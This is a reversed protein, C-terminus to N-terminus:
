IHKLLVLDKAIDPYQRTCTLCSPLLLIELKAAQGEQRQSWNTISGGVTCHAAYELQGDTPLKPETHKKRESCKGV